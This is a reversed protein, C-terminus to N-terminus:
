LMKAQTYLKAGGGVNVVDFGNAQLIRCAIHGRLGVMCSVYVTQGQPIEGIRARLQPLPINMSSPMVVKETEKKGRVDLVFAGEDLLSEIHAVDDFYPEGNLINEAIYGAFNVPSKATGFPPAYCLELDALDYVSMGGTMATAIVDITKDMGSKGVCQAGLLRGDEPAYLVKLCMQSAGPYYTAHNAPYLHISQYPIQGLVLQKENKGTTAAVVDFVRVVSSGLTGKYHKNKGCIIDACMRGMRNAPGALPILVNEGTVFDKVQVADGIAYVDPVGAVHFQDDVIIAGRENVALGCDSVLHGEPRVGAALIVLDAELASGDALRVVRGGEEFGALAKELYLQVGKKRLEAHVLAAMEVDLPPLVQNRRQVISVELGKQVLNEAMELGIYGGGIIVAREPRTADMFSKLKDVDHINRITFLRENAEDVGPVAPLIPAAGPSLVLADYAETRSEGTTLDLATVTKAEPQIATIETKTFVDINFWANMTKTDQVLLAERKAIVGGIYYPLGCNAFSIYEGREFLVIEAEEDMRRLRAACSAGGAVGGVILIRKGM